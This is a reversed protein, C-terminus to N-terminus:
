GPETSRIVGILKSDALGTAHADAKATAAIRYHGIGESASRERSRRLAPWNHALRKSNLFILSPREFFQEGTIGMERQFSRDAQLLLCNTPHSELQHPSIWHTQKGSQFLLVLPSLSALPRASTSGTAKGIRPVTFEKWGGKVFTPALYWSVNFRLKCNARHRHRDLGCHRSGFRQCKTLNLKARSSRWHWDRCYKLQLRAAAVHLATSSCPHRNKEGICEALLLVQPPRSRFIGSIAVGQIEVYLRLRCGM